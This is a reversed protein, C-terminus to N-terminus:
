SCVKLMNELHYPKEKNLIEEMRVLNKDSHEVEKSFRYAAEIVAQMCVAAERGGYYRADGRYIQQILLTSVVALKVKSYANEDYVAGCFYTYIFYIMLQELVIAEREESLGNSTEHVKNIRENLFNKWDYKLVEFEEFLGQMQKYIRKAEAECNRYPLLKKEFRDIAGEKEYRLFLEDMDFLQGNQIRRQMDHGLALVMAMRTRISYGRNQLISIMLERADTLKTFLMYDFDEYEEPEMEKEKSLFCVPETRELLIRAVEPCSLSLSIERLDEYEEVHRPYKKCTDCLMDKGAEKYIDCLNEENLFACRRNYQQFVGEQFDVSNKLRNGFSGPYTKYKQISKEDIVIQWGACCTDPCEGGICAFENYYDPITYLM